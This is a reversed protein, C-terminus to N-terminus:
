LLKDPVNDVHFYEEDPFHLSQVRIYGDNNPAFVMDVSSELAM